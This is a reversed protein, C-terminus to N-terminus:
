HREALELMLTLEPNAKIPEGVWGGVGWQLGNKLKKVHSTIKFQIGLM